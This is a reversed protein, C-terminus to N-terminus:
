DHLVPGWGWDNEIGLEIGFGGEMVIENKIEVPGFDYMIQSQRPQLIDKIRHITSQIFLPQIWKLVNGKLVHDYEEGDTGWVHDWGTGCGSGTKIM